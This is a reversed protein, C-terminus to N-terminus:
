VLSPYTDQVLEIAATGRHALKNDTRMDVVVPTGNLWTPLSDKDLREVDIVRFDEIVPELMQTLKRSGKDGARTSKYLVFKEFVVDTPTPQTGAGAAAREAMMTEVKKADADTGRPMDAKYPAVWLQPRAEFAATGVAV